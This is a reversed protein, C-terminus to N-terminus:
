LPGQDRQPEAGDLIHIGAADIGCRRLELTGDRERDWRVNGVTGGSRYPPTRAAAVAAALDSPSEPPLEKSPKLIYIEEAQTQGIGLAGALTAIRGRDDAVFGCVRPVPSESDVTIIPGSRHTSAPGHWFFRFPPRLRCPQEIPGITNEPTVERWPTEIRWFNRERTLSADKVDSTSAWWGADAEALMAIGLFPAAFWFWPALDFGHEFMIAFVSDGDARKLRVVRYGDVLGHWSMVGGGDIAGVAKWEGDPIMTRASFVGYRAGHSDRRDLLLCAKDPGAAIAAPLQGDRLPPPGEPTWGGDTRYQM